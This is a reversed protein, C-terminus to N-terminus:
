INTCIITLYAKGPKMLCLENLWKSLATNVPVNAFSLVIDEFLVLLTDEFYELDSPGCIVVKTLAVCKGVRSAFSVPILLEM